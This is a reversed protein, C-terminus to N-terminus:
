EYKKLIKSAIKEKTFGFYNIVDQAKGSEGFVNINFLEGNGKVYKYYHAAESMELAFVNTNAPVIKDKYEKDQKEFLFISPMSVIRLDIGKELLEKQVDIALGVESGSAILVGDLKEKEPSIVYAGKLTENVNDSDRYENVNQRTTVIVTPTDKSNIAILCAEQTEVKGCPRIVNVNPISRLMTLQEIPQHTPGDEGVAISDHSFCYITPIKMLASMRVGPKLYDAFVFFGSCFAKTFSHLTIGNSIAAMAHERVGYDIRRNDIGTVQTSSALDASGGILKPNLQSLKKFVDGAVYRTAKNYDKDYPMELDELTVEKEDFLEKYLDPYKEQYQKLVEQHKNYEKFTNEQHKSYEVYSDAFIEFKEGGLKERMSIVEEEKLPAGHCANTGEALCGFGIKTKVEIFTPKDSSKAKLLANVIQDVDEGDTILTYNYGMSEVKLKINETNCANVKGDLQIDNSDYIIVLKNLKLHGALSLAEQTVGEQMDGDGCLVFTHHNFLELGEKNYRTGLVRESLAMGCGMPIGQGLPGSTADIGDTRGLEPHGPTLSGLKRFGVLDEKSIKYGSLHLATYLLSSGHGAALIFRDRDFWNSDKNTQKLVKTYLAHMIPTAGLAMGPHGSKANTIIEMCFTRINKMANVDFNTM